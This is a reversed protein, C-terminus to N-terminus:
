SGEDGQVENVHPAQGFGRAMSSTLHGAAENPAIKKDMVQQLLHHYDGSKMSAMIMEQVRHGVIQAVEQRLHEQRRRNGEGSSDLWAHHRNLNEWLEAIGESRTSVTKVVPPRWAAERKVLHLMQELETKLKETGDLDAKNIVFIDAIEMIGAKFAQVTDGGGPNLVVAVSDAINMIELESQGVGVTEILIVGHGAADLVRVAERTALSLGGLSGRTGMSRIFVGKDLAHGQMRIRDGLLAGGSFPSTPDVAIVGVRHNLGRLHYIFTDVLTSKGAGPPGTIGILFANGTFPYLDSLLDAREPHDDEVFSIARAVARRDGQLVKEALPHM